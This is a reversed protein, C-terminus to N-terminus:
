AVIMSKESTAGVGQETGRTLVICCARQDRFNNSIEIPVEARGELLTGTDSRVTDRSANLVNAVNEVGSILTTNRPVGIESEENRGKEYGREDQQGASRARARGDM